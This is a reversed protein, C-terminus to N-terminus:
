SQTKNEKVDNFRLHAEYARLQEKFGDNPEIRSRAKKVTDYAEQYSMKEKYMLYAIVTSASRSIGGQCHVLIGGSKRGQKKSYSLIFVEDIFANTTQFLASINSSEHDAIMISKYTFLDRHKTYEQGSLDLIHTVLFLDNRVTPYVM